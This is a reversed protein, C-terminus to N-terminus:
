LSSKLDSILFSVPPMPIVQTISVAPFLSQLQFKKAAKTSSNAVLLYDTTAVSAKALTSLTTIEAM